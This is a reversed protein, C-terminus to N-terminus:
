NGLQALFVTTATLIQKHQVQRSISALGDGSQMGYWGFQGHNGGEIVVFQATAPLLARSENIKSPTSLGDLSGSISLVKGLYDVMSGSPYSAWFVIGQMADPHSSVFMAAAVGGLSHGGIAWQKITAYKAIVESARNADFFALNLPMPVIVVLFGQAAIDHAIPAYARPDVLGGPYFIFGTTPESAHPKFILWPTISVDVRADSQMAALAEPMPEAARTGFVLGAGGVVVLVVLGILIWVLYKKM